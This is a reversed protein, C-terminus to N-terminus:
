WHAKIASRSRVCGKCDFEILLPQLFLWLQLSEAKLEKTANSNWLKQQSVHGKSVLWGMLLLCCDAKEAQSLLKTWAAM